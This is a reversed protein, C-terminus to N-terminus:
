KQPQLTTKVFIPSLSNPVHKMSKTEAVDCVRLTILTSEKSSRLFQKHPPPPLQPSPQPDRGLTSLHKRSKDKWSRKREKKKLDKTETDM